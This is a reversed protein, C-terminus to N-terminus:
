NGCLSFFFALVTSLATTVHSPKAQARSGRGAWALHAGREGRETVRRLALVLLTRVTCTLVM